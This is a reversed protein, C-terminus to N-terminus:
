AIPGSAAAGISVLACQNLNRSRLGPRGAGAGNYGSCLGAESVEKTQLTGENVACRCRSYGQLAPGSREFIVRLRFRAATKSCHVFDRAWYVLM